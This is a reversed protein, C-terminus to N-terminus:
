EILEGKVIVRSKGDYTCTILTIEKKDSNNLVDTQTPKITYVSEVLYKYTNDRTQVQITDGVEVKNLNAFIETNTNSHAALSLNGEQGPDTSTSYRGIYKQLTKNDTGDKIIGKLGVSPITLVGITTDDFTTYTLNKETFENVSKTAESVQTDEEYAEELSDPLESNNDEEIENNEFAEIENKLSGKYIHNKYSIVGFSIAIVISFILLFQFGTIITTYKKDFKQMERNLKDSVFQKDKFAM